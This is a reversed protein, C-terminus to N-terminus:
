SSVSSAEENTEGSLRLGVGQITHILPKQFPRDVAKRIKYLHSRLTDSDPLDEGWLEAEIAQRTVVNPSERMLIRLIKMCTPSLQLPQGARSVVATKSDFVLDDVTYVGEVVQGRSRRVHARLRAELEPLHVPKVLYDDCGAAFANLKDDHGDRATLVVVPVANGLRQRLETLVKIGDVEPLGLDLVVVDYNGHSALELASRGDFAFDVRIDSIELFDGLNGALDKNDEVLLVLM